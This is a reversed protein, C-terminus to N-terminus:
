KRSAKGEANNGGIIVQQYVKEKWKNLEVNQDENWDVREELREFKIKLNTSEYNLEITRELFNQQIISVRYNTFISVSVSFLIVILLIWAINNASVAFYKIEGNDNM